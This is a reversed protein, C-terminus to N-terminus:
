RKWRATPATIAEPITEAPVITVEVRQGLRLPAPSQRALKVLVVGSDTPRGPDQPRLQRTVVVQPVQEVTAAWRVGPFGEATVFAHLGPALSAGDFENVEAEIRTRALNAITAIPSGAAIVECPQVFRATVTGDIPSTITTRALQVAVRDIQAAAADRRARAAALDRRQQEVEVLPTAGRSTLDSTRQLKWEALKIDADLESVRATSEALEARYEAPDLEAIVEGKHVTQGEQVALRVIRGPIEASISVQEGPYTVVRAEAVIGDRDNSADTAGLGAGGPNGAWTGHATSVTHAVFLLGLCSFLIAGSLMRNRLFDIVRM